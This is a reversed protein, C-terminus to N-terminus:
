PRPLLKIVAFMAGQPDKLYAFRGTGPIDTPPLVASGGLSKAKSTIADCDEVQIYPLWHPPVGEMQPTLRYMGGIDTGANNFVTYPPNIPLEKTSWGFLSSYFKGATAENTTGLEAWCASGPENIIGAGVHKKGQWLSLMAGTPDQLVTMRGVDFVDFPEMLTRGGLAAVKRAAEDADSVAVYCNWHPPTQQQQKGRQYLAGVNKGRLMLMTYSTGDGMPSDEFTWGFLQTYFKKAGDQDAAMLEIWCFSGPKHGVVEPM